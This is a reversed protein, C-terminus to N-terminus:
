ASIAFLACSSPLNVAASPANPSTQDAQTSCLEPPREAAWRVSREVRDTRPEIGAAAPRPFGCGARALTARAAGGVELLSLGRARRHDLSFRHAGRHREEARGGTRAVRRRLGEAARRGQCAGRRDPGARRWIAGGVTAGPGGHPSRAARAPRGRRAIASRPRDHDGSSAPADRQSARRYVTKTRNSPRREHETRELRSPKSWPCISACRGNNTRAEM